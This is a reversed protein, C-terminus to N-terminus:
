HKPELPTLPALTKAAKADEQRLAALAVDLAHCPRQWAEYAQVDEVLLALASRLQAVESRLSAAYAEMVGDLEYVNGSRDKWHMDSIRRLQISERWRAARNVIAEGPDSQAPASHEAFAQNLNTCFQVSPHNVWSGIPRYSPAPFECDPAVIRIPKDMGLAIGAEILAGKLPFDGMEVYLVLCDADAIERWIRAWLEGLDTTAGPEAEDIWTSTIRVGQDRFRKWMAPREPLSARSAVYFKNPSDPM